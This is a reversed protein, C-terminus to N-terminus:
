RPTRVIGKLTEADIDHGGDYELVDYALGSSALREREDAVLKPALAADERGRVFTLEVDAFAERARSLDLDPPSTDGWLLVRAPRVGGHTVWRAATAVGQSFGLVTLRAGEAGVHDALTDLYAVYDDIEVLRDERTMWTAGVVSTAGHRGPEQSIYFRSLAEPAVIFRTGDDIPEFRRLFRRALQKYGHLVIWMEPAEAPGLSWYRATKRIALHHENM